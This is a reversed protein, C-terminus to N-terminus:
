FRNGERVNSLLFLNCYRLIFATSSAPQWFKHTYVSRNRCCLDQSGILQQFDKAIEPINYIHAVMLHTNQSVRLLDQLWVLFFDDQAGALRSM